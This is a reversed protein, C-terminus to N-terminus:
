PLARGSGTAPSWRTSQRSETYEELTMTPKSPDYIPKKNPKDAPEKANKAARHNNKANLSKTKTKPERPKAEWNLFLRWLGTTRNYNTTIFYLATGDEKTTNFPPVAMLHAVLGKGDPLDSFDNTPPSGDKPYVRKGLVLTAIKTSGSETIPAFKDTGPILGNWYVAPDLKLESGTRFELLVVSGLGKNAANTADTWITNCWAVM